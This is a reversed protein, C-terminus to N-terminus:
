TNARIISAYSSWFSATKYANVSGAPVYIVTPNYSSISTTGITPPTSDLMTLKRVSATSSTSLADLNSLETVGSLTVASLISSQVFHKPITVSGNGYLAFDTLNNCQGFQYGDSSLSTVGSLTVSKIGSFGRFAYAGISKISNTNITMTSGTCDTFASAGISVSGGNEFTLSKIKGGKFATEGISTVTKSFTLSPRTSANYGINLFANTGITKLKKSLSVSTIKNESSSNIQVRFANNGISTVSDSMTISTLQIMDRFTNASISTICDGIEVKTLGSSTGSLVTMDYGSRVDGSTLASTSNCSTTPSQGSKLYRKLKFNMAPVYCYDGNEAYILSTKGSFQSQAAYSNYCDCSPIYIKILSTCDKFADAGLAPATTRKFHVEKLASDRLFLNTSSGTVSAPITAASLGSMDAFCGSGLYTVGSPIGNINKIGNALRLCSNGITTLKSPFHFSTLGSCYMFAQSGLETINDDLTLSSLSTCGSFANDGVKFTSEDCTYVSAKTMASKSTTHGEVMSQTLATGGDCEVNYVSSDRYQAVLKYDPEAASVKLYTLRGNYYMKNINTESYFWDEITTGSYKIM